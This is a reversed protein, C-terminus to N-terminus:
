HGAHDADASGGRVAALLRGPIGTAMAGVVVLGAIAGILLDALTSVTGALAQPVAHTLAEIAHHVPGVQEVLIHGGVLLMAVTGIVSIARMLWPTGRVIMRGATAAGGGRRVLAEGGDDLKVLVAVLGYVGVTILVSVTYLVLAKTVFPAETVEGLTIAVIEASLILDTRIAGAIRGQEFAVPDTPAVAVAAHPDHPLVKHLIKEVGEFCLFLGGAFLLPGIAWPAIADLLLAGPALLVTKNFLSGKAVAWVVPLERDRSLGTTQEATVAMDDTVLGTTKRGAAMTLASVDDALAAVDDAIATIDDLLALLGGGAM